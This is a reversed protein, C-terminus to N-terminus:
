SWMAPGGKNAIHDPDKALCLIFVVCVGLSPSVYADYAQYRNHIPELVVNFQLKSIAPNHTELLIWNVDRDGIHGLAHDKTNCRYNALSDNGM